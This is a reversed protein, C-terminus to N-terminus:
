GSRGPHLSGRLQWLEEIPLHAVAIMPERDSLLRLPSRFEEIPALATGIM